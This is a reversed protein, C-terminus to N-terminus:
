PPPLKRPISRLSERITEIPSLLDISYKPLVTQLPEATFMMRLRHPSRLEAIQSLWYEPIHRLADLFKDQDQLTKAYSPDAPDLYIDVIRSHRSTRLGFVAEAAVYNASIGVLKCIEAIRPLHFGMAVVLLEGQGKTFQDIFNAAYVFNLITNTAQNEVFLDTNADISRRIIKAMLEAESPRDRGGTHGGSVIVLKPAYCLCLMSAAIANIRGYLNLRGNGPALGPLVPGYGPVMLSDIHDLKIISRLATLRSNTAM